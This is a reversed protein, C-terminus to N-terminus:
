RPLAFLRHGRLKDQSKHKSVRHRLVLFQEEGLILINLGVLFKPSAVSNCRIANKRSDGYQSANEIHYLAMPPPVKKLTPPVLAHQFSIVAFKTTQIPLQPTVLM